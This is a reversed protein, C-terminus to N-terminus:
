KQAEMDEYKKIVGLIFEQADKLDSENPHEKNIGGVLRFVSFKDIGKCSFEGLVVKNKSRLLDALAKNGDTKNGGRTSFVFSYARENCLPKVFEILRKSHKGYYIGSGFGVIDFDKFRYKPAEEITTLTIPAVKAMAEAVKQTNGQHPSEVVVIIKM